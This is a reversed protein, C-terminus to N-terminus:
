YRSLNLKKYISQVAKAQSICDELANHAGKANKDRPDGHTGFLTRSDRIQWFQWPTPWEKQLYLNELIVIDFHPGQAWINGAGAVFRNLQKYTEELATRGSESFAEERVDDAQKAWWDMTEQQIHRDIGIQEDVDVRLYLGDGIADTYPDFKVCGITLIVADPRTSMTELDIM